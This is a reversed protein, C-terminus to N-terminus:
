IAQSKITVILTKDKLNQMTISMLSIFAIDILLNFLFHVIITPETRFHDIRTIILPNLVSVRKIM